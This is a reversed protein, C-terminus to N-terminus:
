LAENLIMLKLPGMERQTDKLVIHFWEATKDNPLTEYETTPDVSWGLPVELLDDPRLRQAAYLSSLLLSANGNRTAIQEVRATFAIASAISTALLACLLLSTLVEILTFGSSSSTQSQANM